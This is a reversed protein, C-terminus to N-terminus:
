RNQYNGVQLFGNILKTMKDVQSNILTLYRIKKPDPCNELCRTQLLQTFAKISTLPTKLEHSIANILEYDAGKNLVKSKKVVVDTLDSAPTNM